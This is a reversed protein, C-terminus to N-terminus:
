SSCGNCRCCWLRKKWWCGPVREEKGWEDVEAGVGGEVRRKGSEMAESTGEVMAGSAPMPEGILVLVGLLLFQNFFLPDM